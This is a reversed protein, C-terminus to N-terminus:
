SLGLALKIDDNMALLRKISSHRCTMITAIRYINRLWYPNSVYKLDPNFSGPISNNSPQVQKLHMSLAYSNVELTRRQEQYQAVSQKLQNM